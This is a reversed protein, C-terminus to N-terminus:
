LELGRVLIRCCHNQTTKKQNSYPTHHFFFRLIRYPQTHTHTHTHTHTNSDWIFACSTFIDVPSLLCSAQLRWRKLPDSPDRRQRKDWKFERTNIEM